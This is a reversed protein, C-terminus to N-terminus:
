RPVWNARATICSRLEWEWLPAMSRTLVPIGSGDDCISLYLMGSGSGLSIVIHHAGGHRIANSIAEQAIRYLNLAIEAIRLSVIM